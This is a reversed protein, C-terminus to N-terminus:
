ESRGTGVQFNWEMSEEQEMDISTHSEDWTQAIDYVTDRRSGEHERQQQQLFLHM